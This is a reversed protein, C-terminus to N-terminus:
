IENELNYVFPMICCAVPLRQSLVTARTKGWMCLPIGSGVEKPEREVGVGLGESQEPEM